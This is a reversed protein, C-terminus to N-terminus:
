INTPHGNCHGGVFLAQRLVPFLIGDAGRGSSISFIKNFNLIFHEANSTGGSSFSFFSKGSIANGDARIKGFGKNIAHALFHQKCIVTDSFYHSCLNISHGFFGPAQGINFLM